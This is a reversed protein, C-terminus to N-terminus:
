APPLYAPTERGSAASSRAAADLLRELQEPDTTNCGLEHNKKGTGHYDSSGTRVLGLEDALARLDARDSADHDQHDVELGGLGAAALSALVEDTLVEGSGRGRPHALVSVGGAATVAAIAVRVDPAYRGVYGALGTDLLTAFAEDRDGVMGRAVLADAVHPRGPVAGPSTVAAVDEATVPYGAESLQSLMQPLRGDRGGRIRELEAALTPEQPDPLYGLLHVSRHEVTTSIEMGRVLGVGHERAAALAEDWGSATDHDTVGIVQLGASAAEKVLDTVPVTGDSRTSHTHLDIRM